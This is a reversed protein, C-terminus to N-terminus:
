RKLLGVYVLVIFLQLIGGMALYKWSFDLMQDIRLRAFMTRIMALLFVIVLSKAIYLLFNIFPTLDTGAFVFSGYSFLFGGLFIAAILSSGVVMRIDDILRMVALKKGSYETLVGGVIETEAHPIDFPSRELKIELAVIAIVFGLLIVLMGAPHLELYSTIDSMSWSGALIGCSLSALIFPVEYGFLMTAARFGGVLPYLSVSSWGIVFLALTPISLLYLSILLDGQLPFLATASWIPIFIIPTMVAAFAVLPTYQFLVRDVSKPIIDEKSLLKILDAFPQFIPPGVRNQLRAYVKRDLWECFLGFLLLFAFGPFILLFVVSELLGSM